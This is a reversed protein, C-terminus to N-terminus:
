FVVIRFSRNAAGLTSGLASKTTGDGLIHPGHASWNGTTLDETVELQYIGAVETPILIEMGTGAEAGAVTTGPSRTIILNDIMTPQEPAGNGAYVQLRMTDVGLVGSSVGTVNALVGRAPIGSTRSFPMTPGIDSIEFDFTGGQHFTIVIEYWRDHADDSFAAIFPPQIDSALLKGAGDRVFFDSLDGHSGLRNHAYNGSYVIQLAKKGSASDHLAMRFEDWTHNAPNLQFRISGEVLLPFVFDTNDDSRHPPGAATPDNTSTEHSRRLALFKDSGDFTDDEDVTLSGSCCHVDWDAKAIEPDPDDASDRSWGSGNVTTPDLYQRHGVAYGEFDETINTQGCAAMSGLLLCTIAVSVVMLSTGIKSKQSKIKSQALRSAERRSQGSDDNMCAPINM